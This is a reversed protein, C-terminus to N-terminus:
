NFRPIPESLAWSLKIQAPLHQTKKKLGLLYKKRKEGRRTRVPSQIQLSTHLLTARLVSAVVLAGWQGGWTLWVFGWFFFGKAGTTEKEL